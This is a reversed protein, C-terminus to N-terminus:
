ARTAHPSLLVGLTSGNATSGPATSVHAPQVCVRETSLRQGPEFIDKSAIPPRHPSSLWEFIDTRQLSSSHM